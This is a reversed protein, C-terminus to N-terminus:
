HRLRSPERELAMPTRTSPDPQFEWGPSACSAVFLLLPLAFRCLPM